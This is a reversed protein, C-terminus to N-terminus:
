PNKQLFTVWKLRVGGYVKMLRTGRGGGGGGGPGRTHVGFISFRVDLLKHHNPGLAWNLTLM